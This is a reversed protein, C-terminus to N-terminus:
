KGKKVKIIDSYDYKTLNLYYKKDVLIIRDDKKVKKDFKKIIKEKDKVSCKLQKLYKKLSIIKDEKKNSKDEIIEIEAELHEQPQPPNLMFQSAISQLLHKLQEDKDKYIQEIKVRESILMQEKQDRLTRTEGELKEVKALLALNQEELLKYYRDDSPQSKTRTKPKQQTNNSTDITVMKIGDVIESSLSGRRIRNHIAEKSIHFYESAELITMSKM